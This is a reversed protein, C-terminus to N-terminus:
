KVLKEKTLVLLEPFLNILDDLSNITIYDYKKNKNSFKIPIGGAKNWLELNKSYDDVLIAGTADVVDCKNKDKSVTIVELNSFKNKLYNIKAIRENECVVHTLIRVNFLNSNIIKSLNSISNNIENCMGLLINWDIKEYFSRPPYGTHEESGYYIDCAVDITNLIVGDFDIYLNTKM